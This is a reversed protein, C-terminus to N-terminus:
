EKVLEFLRERLKEPSNVVEDAEEPGKGGSGAYGICYLGASKASQTGPSTDDVAVSESPKVGIKDTALRYTEPEPKGSGELKKPDVMADFELNFREIVKEPWYSGTALGIKLGESRLDKVLQKFGPMIEAKERYIEDAKEEYLQFFKEQSISVGYKRSLERYTNTISMGAFESVDVKEGTAQLYIEEEAKNWFQETNVVVGDLDFIVAEM